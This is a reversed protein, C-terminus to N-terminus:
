LRSRVKLGGKNSANHTSTDTDAGFLAVLEARTFSCELAEWQGRLAANRDYLENFPAGTGSQSSSQSNSNSTTISSTADSSPCPPTDWTMSRLVGSPTAAAATGEEAFVLRVSNPAMPLVTGELWPMTSQQVIFQAGRGGVARQGQATDPDQQLAVVGYSGELSLYEEAARRRVAYGVGSGSGSSGGKSGGRADSGYSGEKEGEPRPLLLHDVFAPGGGTPLGKGADGSIVAAAASAAMYAELSRYDRDVALCWHRGVVLLVADRQPPLGAEQLIKPCVRVKRLALYKCHQQQLPHRRAWREQVNHHYRCM